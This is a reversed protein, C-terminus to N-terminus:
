DLNHSTPELWRNSPEKKYDTVFSLMSLFTARRQEGRRRITRSRQGELVRGRANWILVRCTAGLRGFNAFPAWKRDEYKYLELYCSNEVRGKLHAQSTADIDVNISVDDGSITGELRLTERDDVYVGVIRCSEQKIRMAPREGGIIHWNGALSNCQTHALNGLLLPLALVFLRASNSSCTLTRM